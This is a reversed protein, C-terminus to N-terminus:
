LNKYIENTLNNFDKITLNEARINRNLNINDLITGLLEKSLGFNQALNNILTKRRQSFSKRIIDYFLDLHIVEVDKEQKLDLRVVASDVNPAPIFVSRPVNLIKKTKCKYQIVVSLSNYDKTSPKSTLRSAVENQMMVVYSKIKDTEQLLKLLIATTIYYPLNAVLVIDKDDNLYEDIYKTIEVELIDKNILIVNNHEHLTDNLVPILTEDIEFALVKNARECLLETLAGLGPGIEIINKDKTIDARDVINNLINQDVLFNQGFKKKITYEHKEMIEKTRKNNGIKM